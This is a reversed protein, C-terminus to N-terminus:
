ALGLEDCRDFYWDQSSELIELARGRVQDCFAEISRHSLHNDAALGLVMVPTSFRKHPNAVRIGVFIDGFGPVTMIVDRAVLHDKGSFNLTLDTRTGMFVYDFGEHTDEEITSVHYIQENMERYKRRLADFMEGGFLDEFEAGSTHKYDNKTM